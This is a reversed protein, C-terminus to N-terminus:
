CSRVRRTVVTGNSRYTKSVRVSCNHAYAYDNGVGISVGFHPHHRHRWGNHWGQASAPAVSGFAIAALATMTVLTTRM